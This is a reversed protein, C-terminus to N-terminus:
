LWSRRQPTPSPAASPSPYTPSNTSYVSKSLILFPSVLDLEQLGKAANTLYVIANDTLYTCDALCLKRLRSFQANGWYQFGQDTITTCRTLDVQELRPAAHSAIHHMSRDTVHKCYSLTLRKLQPCGFVTGAPIQHQQQGQLAARTNLTPRGNAQTQPHNSNVAQQVVWGVIRALLTDSVKRCNSLDVEQLGRAKNAMELIAPATVDWVSKMKWSLVNSGCMVALSTFGEDTIHFCNSIDIVRPRAGVFPCIANTLAEDTVKRNYFTLDLVHLLDPSKTLIQSWKRSVCRLHMLEHLELHSFIRTLVKEPVRGESSKPPPSRHTQKSRKLLGAFFDPPTTSYKPKLPSPFSTREPSQPPRRSSESLPSSSEEPPIPALSGRRSRSRVSNLGVNLFPDPDHPKLVPRDEPRSPKHPSKIDGENFMVRPGSRRPTSPTKEEIELEDIPPTTTEGVDPMVVDGDSASALREKATREIQRRIDSPLREWFGELVKETITLCEVLSVSRVTATRRPALSLSVVEGFYQGPRLRAKISPPEHSRERAIGNVFNAGPKVPRIDSPRENIVEVEGRCIFYVERGQSDQKIIDTFPPFTRPEANVGLFHLVDDPASSFLPLEKLLPRVNILGIELASSPSTEPLGPSPSKRKKEPPFGNLKDGMGELLDHTRKSPRREPMAPDTSSTNSQKKKRELITLREQAEDMIAKEVEPYSPLIKRLDEKKLVVVHCKSKAIITATRPRDMLIGIEGFFAGTKLEAYVSEGDRSTVAVEGRTVWYMAKAEEGETLINDNQSYIQPRLHNLVEEVFVDPTSQFLPFSRIKDLLGLPLDKIQSRSLPSPRVPRAPNDAEFAYGDPLPLHAGGRSPPGGRSGHHRRM